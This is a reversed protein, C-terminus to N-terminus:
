LIYSLAQPAVISELDKASLAVRACCGPSWAELKDVVGKDKLNAFAVALARGRSTTEVSETPVAQLAIESM